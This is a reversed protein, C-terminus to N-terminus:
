AQGGCIALLPRLNTKPADKKEQSSEDKTAEKAGYQARPFRKSRRFDIQKQNDKARHSRSRYGGLLGATALHKQTADNRKRL